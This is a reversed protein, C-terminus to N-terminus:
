RVPGSRQCWASSPLDPQRPKVSAAVIAHLAELVLEYGNPRLGCIIGRALPSVCSRRRFLARAFLASRRVVALTAPGFAATKREGLRKLNPRRLVFAPRGMKKGGADTPATM